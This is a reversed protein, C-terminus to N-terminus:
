FDFVVAAAPGRVRIDLESLSDFRRASHRRESYGLRLGVQPLPHFVVGGDFSYSRVAQGVSGTARVEMSWMDNFRWRPTIGYWFKTGWQETAPRRTSVTPEVSFDLGLRSVGIMPELQFHSGLTIRQTYALHLQQVTVKNRLTDPGSVSTNGVDIFEGSALGQTDEGRYREYGVEFGGERRGSALAEPRMSARVAVSPSNQDRIRAGQLGECGALTLLLAGFLCLNKAQM